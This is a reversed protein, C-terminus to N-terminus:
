SSGGVLNALKKYDQLKDRSVTANSQRSTIHHYLTLKEKRTINSKPLKAKTTSIESEIEDVQNRTFKLAVPVIM